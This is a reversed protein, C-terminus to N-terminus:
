TDLQHQCLDIMLSDNSWKLLVAQSKSQMHMHAHIYIQYPHPVLLTVQPAFLRMGIGHFLAPVHIKQLTSKRFNICIQLFVATFLMHLEEFRSILGGPFPVNESPWASEGMKWLQSCKGSKHVNQVTTVLATLM